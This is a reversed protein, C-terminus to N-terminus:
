LTSCAALIGFFVFVFSISDIRDLLGGHEKLINSFDKIENRRKTLSFYLDGLLAIVPSVFLFVLLYSFFRAHSNLLVAGLTNSDTGRIGYVTYIYALTILFSAVYGVFAGEWTKKPSINPALKAKIFKGGLFRGGFYGGIDYSCAVLILMIVLEIGIKKTMLVIFTKIFLTLFLSMFWLSITKIVLALINVNQIVVLRILFFVLVIIFTTLPAWYDYIYQTFLTGFYGVINKNMDGNVNMNPYVKDRGFLINTFMDPGLMLALSYLITLIISPWLMSSYAHSLEYFIWGVLAALILLAFVRLIWFGATSFNAYLDPRFSFSLVILVVALVAVIVMAPVFRNLWFNKHKQLQTEM